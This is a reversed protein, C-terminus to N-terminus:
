PAVMSGCLAGPGDPTDTCPKLRVAAAAPAAAALMSIGIAFLCLRRV